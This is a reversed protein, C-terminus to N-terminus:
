YRDGFLGKTFADTMKNLMDERKTETMRVVCESIMARIKTTIEENGAMDKEIINRAVSYLADNFIRQINSQSNYGGSTVPKLLETIAGAILVTRKNEDLSQLIAEQVISKFQDDQLELKM